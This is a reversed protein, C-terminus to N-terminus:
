KIYKESGTNVEIYKKGNITVEREVPFSVRENIVEEKKDEVVKEEKVTKDVNKVPKKFKKLLGM